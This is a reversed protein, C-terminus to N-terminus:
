EGGYLVDNGDKGDVDNVYKDVSKDGSKDRSQDRSSDSSEDGSSDGSSDGSDNDGENAAGGDAFIDTGADGSLLDAGTFIDDGNTPGDQSEGTDADVWSASLLVRKELPEIGFDAGKKKSEPGNKPNQNKRKKKGFM